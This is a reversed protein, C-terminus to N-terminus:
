RAPTRRSAATGSAGSTVLTRRITVAGDYSPPGDMASRAPWAMVLRGAMAAPVREARSGWRGAADLRWGTM